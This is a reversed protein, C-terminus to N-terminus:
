QSLVKLKGGLVGYSEVSNLGVIAGTLEDDEYLAYALTRPTLEVFTDEVVKRATVKAESLFAFTAERMLLLAESAVDSLTGSAIMKQHQAELIAEVEEIDSVTVFELGVVAENALALAIGQVMNNMLDNNKKRRRGSPTSIDFELDFDGFKFANTMAKFSAALSPLISNLSQFAGQIADALAIPARIISTVTAVAKAVFASFEGIKDKISTVVKAIAQIQTYVEQVKAVADFFLEVFGFAPVDWNEILDLSLDFKVKKSAGFIEEGQGLKAQPISKATQKVFEITIRGIGAERPTEDLAWSLAVLSEINGEIPHVLLAPERKELAELLYKREEDYDSSIGFEGGPVRSKLYRAAVFGRVSYTRQKQGVDDVIQEDSNIIARATAKRGGTVSTSDVFFPVDRFSAPLLRTSIETKADVEIAM